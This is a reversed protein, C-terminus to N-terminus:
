PQAREVLEISSAQYLPAGLYRSGKHNLIEGHVTVLDGERYSDMQRDRALVVGGGNADENSLSAYRLVWLGGDAHVFFLQGTLRSYDAAREARNEYRRDLDFPSKSEKEITTTSVPAVEFAAPARVEKEKGGEPLKKGPDLDKPGKLHEGTAPATSPGANVPASYAGAAGGCSSCGSNCGSECGCESRHFRGKLREWLSPGSECGCASTSACGCSSQVPAACGCGCESERHFRGKLRSFFGEKECGCSPAAAACGCSSAQECGCEGGRSFKARLRAFFGEKECGCGSDCSNCGCNSSGGCSSCSASSVIPAATAAPAAAAADGGALWASTVLLFAANV